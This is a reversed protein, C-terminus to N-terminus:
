TVKQRSDAVPHPTEPLVALNVYPGSSLLIKNNPLECVYVSCVCVCMKFASTELPRRGYRWKCKAWKNGVQTSNHVVNFM